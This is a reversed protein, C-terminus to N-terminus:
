DLTGLERWIKYEERFASLSKWANAFAASNKKEEAVVEKWANRLADLIEPSLTKLEVGKDQLKILAEAQIAEGEALGWTIAANCVSEIQAQQTDSLDNWVELNILLDLFTSQQHWGPFYYYKAVSDFGLNQDIAPMSFETADITGRELAPFIDGPSLLQTSVGLKEMVKAGLGFFRMKLGKLDDVTKIEKRFWGAAEPAIVACPMTHINYGAYLEQMLEQGGGFKMWALYEPASPGFPVSAFMAFGTDKGTWFGPSSWGAQVAGLSVADFTEMAPVIAGPEQYNVTITGGTVTGIQDAVRTGLVGLQTLSGPYVSQMDWTHKKDQAQASGGALGLCLATALAVYRM